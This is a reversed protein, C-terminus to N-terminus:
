SIIAFSFRAALQHAPACWPGLPAGFRNGYYVGNRGIARYIGANLSQGLVLALCGLVLRWAPLALVATPSLAGPAYLQFWGVLGLGQVAKIVHAAAAMFKCGQDGCALKDPRRDGGVTRCCAPWSEPACWLWLYFIHPLALIPLLWLGDM